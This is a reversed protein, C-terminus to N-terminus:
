FLEEWHSTISFGHKISAKETTQNQFVYQTFKVTTVNTEKLISRCTEFLFFTQNKSFLRCKNRKQEATPTSATSTHRISKQAVISYENMAVFRLSFLFFTWRFKSRFYFITVFTIALM